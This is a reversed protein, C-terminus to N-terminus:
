RRRQLQTVQVGQVRNGSFLVRRDDERDGNFHEFRVHVPIVMITVLMVVIAVLMVVKRSGPAPAVRCIMLIM